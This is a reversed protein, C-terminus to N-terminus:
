EKELYPYLKKMCDPCISHSFVANTKNQVYAEIHHWTGKEDRINKCSACIPILGSLIKEYNKKMEQHLRIKEDELTKREISKGILSAVADLLYVEEELFPGKYCDQRKEIYAIEIVGIQEKNISVPSALMWESESYHESRYEMDGVMLRACAIESFQWGGPILNVVEQLIKELPTDMKNFLKFTGYLCKLEKTRENLDRVNNQNDKKQDTKKAM